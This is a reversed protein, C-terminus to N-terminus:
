GGVPQADRLVNAILSGIAPDIEVLRVNHAPVILLKGNLEVGVYRAQLGKELNAAMNRM